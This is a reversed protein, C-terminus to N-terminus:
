CKLIERVVQINDDNQSQQIYIQYTKNKHVYFLWGLMLGKSLQILISM